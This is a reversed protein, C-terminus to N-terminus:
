PNQISFSSEIVYKSGFESLHTGDRYMLNQAQYSELNVFPFTILSAKTRLIEVGSNALENLLKEYLSDNEIIKLEVICDHFSDKELLCQQFESFTVDPMDEIIIVEVNQQNFYDITRKLASIVAKYRNGSFDLSKKKNKLEDLEAKIKKAEDIISDKKKAM